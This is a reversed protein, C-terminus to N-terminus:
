NKYDYDSGFKIDIDKFKEAANDFYLQQEEDSVEESTEEPEDDESEEVAEKVAATRIEQTDFLSVDGTTHIGDDFTEETIPNNEENQEVISTNEQTDAIIESDVASSVTEDGVNEVVESENDIDNKEEVSPLSDILDLHSHYISFLRAKFNSVEKRLTDLTEQEKDVDKQANKVLREAKFTAERIILEAKNKGERIVQENIKQANLLANSISEENSRYEELKAVVVEIKKILEANDTLMKGYDQAIEDLFQDVEEKNYGSLGKSFQKNKIDNVSIM